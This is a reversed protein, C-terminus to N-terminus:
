QPKWHHKRGMDKNNSWMWMQTFEVWKLQWNIFSKNQGNKLVRIGLNISCLLSAFWISAFCSSFAFRSPLLLFHLLLVLHFSFFIFFCDLFFMTFIVCIKSILHHCTLKFLFLFLYFSVQVTLEAFILIGYDITLLHAM